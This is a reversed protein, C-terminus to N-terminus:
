PLPRIPCSKDNELLWKPGNWWIHGNDALADVNTGRTILDGPNSSTPVLCWMKVETNDLIQLIRNAVFSKM